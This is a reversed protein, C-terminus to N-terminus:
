ITQHMEDSREPECHVNAVATSVEAHHSRVLNVQRGTYLYGIM